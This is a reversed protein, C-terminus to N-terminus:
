RRVVALFFKSDGIRSKKECIGTLHASISVLPVQMRDNPYRIMKVTSKAMAAAPTENAARASLPVMRIETSFPPHNMPPDPPLPM